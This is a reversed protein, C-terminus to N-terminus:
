HVLGPLVGKLLSNKCRSSTFAIPDLLCFASITSVGLNISNNSKAVIILNDGLLISGADLFTM